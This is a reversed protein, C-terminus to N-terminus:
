IKVLYRRRAKERGAENKAFQVFYGYAAVLHPSLKKDPALFDNV